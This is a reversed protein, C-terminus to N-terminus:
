EAMQLARTSPDSALDRKLAEIELLLRQESQDQLARSERLLDEVMASSASRELSQILEPETPRDRGPM